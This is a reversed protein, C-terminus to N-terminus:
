YDYLKILTLKVDITTSSVWQLLGRAYDEKTFRGHATRKSIDRIARVKLHDASAKLTAHPLTVLFQMLVDGGTPDPQEQRLQQIVIAVENPIHLESTASIVPLPDEYEQFTFSFALSLDDTSSSSTSTLSLYECFHNAALNALLCHMPDTILQQAPKWYVLHWMESWQVGHDHFLTNRIAETRADRWAEAHERMQDDDHQDWDKHETNTRGLTNCDHCNCYSCYHHGMHSSFASLKCAEPLDCVCVAVACRVTKGKPSLATKTFRIGPLWLDCLDDILPRLYHNLKTLAPERPGPIIAVLYLNEPKYHIDPPLNLCAMSVIRCSTSAGRQLVM